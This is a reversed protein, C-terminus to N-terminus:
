FKKGQWDFNLAVTRGRSKFDGLSGAFNRHVLFCARNLPDGLFVKHGKRSFNPWVGSKTWEIIACMDWSSLEQDLAAIFQEFGMKAISRTNWGVLQLLIEGPSSEEGM